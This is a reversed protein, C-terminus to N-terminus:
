SILLSSFIKGDLIQFGKSFKQTKKKTSSPLDKRLANLQSKLSAIQQRKHVNSWSEMKRPSNATLQSTTQCAQNIGTDATIEITQAISLTSDEMDTCFLM